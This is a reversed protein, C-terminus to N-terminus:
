LIDLECKLMDNFTDIECLHLLELFKNYLKTVVSSMCVIIDSLSTYSIVWSSQILVSSIEERSLIM